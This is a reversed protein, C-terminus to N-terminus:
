RQSYYKTPPKYNLKTVLDHGVRAVGHVTAWWAERDMPNELCSYQFPNGNGEGPSKEQGLFQVWTEHMAPLNKVSQATVSAWIM